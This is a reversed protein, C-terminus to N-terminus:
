VVAGTFPVAVGFVKAHPVPVRTKFGHAKAMNNFAHALQRASPINEGKARAAELPHASVYAAAKPAQASPLLTQVALVVVQISALLGTVEANIAPFNQGVLILIPSLNTQVDSLAADIEGVVGAPATSLDKQYTTVLTQILTLAATAKGSYTQIEALVAANPTTGQAEAVVSVIETAINIVVPLDSLVKSVDSSFACGQLPVLALALVLIAIFGINTVKNFISKM